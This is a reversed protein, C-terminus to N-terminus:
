AVPLLPASSTPCGEAGSSSLSDHSTQCKDKSMSWASNRPISVSVMIADIGGTADKSPQVWLGMSLLTEYLRENRSAIDMDLPPENFHKSQTNMSKAEPNPKLEEGCWWCHSAPEPSPGAGCSACPLVLRQQVVAPAAKTLDDSM